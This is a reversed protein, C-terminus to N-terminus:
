TAICAKIVKDHGSRSMGVHDTNTHEDQHIKPQCLRVKALSNRTSCVSDSDVEDNCM